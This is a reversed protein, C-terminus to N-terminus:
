DRGCCGWFTAGLGVWCHVNASGAYLGDRLYGALLYERTGSTATGGAYCRDAWGTSESSGIVSPYQIGNNFDVAIDGIWWDGGGSIAPINGLLTYTSKITADASSHTLGKPAYYVNKSYDSQFDMVVDSAVFYTGIAYERGQVRYPYKGSTNSVYSGDHKGIVKDTTGSYWPMSSIYIPSSLTDTLVVPTTNFGTSVDLYVASNSDDIPEIKTVRALDAYARMTSIGRDINLTGNNNSGYGVYVSSGVIINAAQAKTVPFYTESTSRQISAAYQFSYDTCGRYLSQSNKMAGKIVNFIIQFLNAECGAGWYGEGKKQYNTIMNNHSQYLEPKSNPFSRLLGDTGKGSFYKSGICWPLVGGNGDNCESWPELGLEPHPMDSITILDYDANSTDWKGYFSMQMVGVDISGDDKYEESGEIAVPYPAGYSNRKYNVNIWEFMPHQGNLYDDKGEVTDTSPEFVLGANDLMKEGTSSPNSAFKWLKTQYVKGTRRLAYYNEIYQKLDFGPDGKPINFNFIADNTTGSNTVSAPETSDVRTVTGIKITAANGRDGKDGKDGKQGKVNGLLFKM